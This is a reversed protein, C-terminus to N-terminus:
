GEIADDDERSLSTCSVPWTTSGEAVEEEEEDEEEEVLSGSKIVLVGM